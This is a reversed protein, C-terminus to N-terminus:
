KLLNFIKEIIRQKNQYFTIEIVENNIFKKSAFLIITQYYANITIDYELESVSEISFEFQENAIKLFESNNINKTDSSLVTIYIQNDKVIGTVQYSDYTKFYISSILILLFLLVSLIIFSSYKPKLNLLAYKNLSLENNM